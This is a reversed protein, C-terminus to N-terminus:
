SWNVAHHGGLWQDWELENPYGSPREPGDYYWIDPPPGAAGVAFWHGTITQREACWSQGDSSVHIRIGNPTPLCNQESRRELSPSMSENQYRGIRRHEGMQDFALSRLAEMTESHERQDLQNGDSDVGAVGSNDVLRREAVEEAAVRKRDEDIIQGVENWADKFGSTHAFRWGGARRLVRLRNPHRGALLVVALFRSHVPQGKAASRMQKFARQYTSYVALLYVYILAIATLWVPLLFERALDSQDIDAWDSMLRMIGWALAGLGYISLCRNAMKAPQAQKPFREPLGVVVICTFLVPQALLEVWLSFSALNAVFEVFVVVGISRLIERKFFGPEEIAETFKSFLGFGALLLWLVTTKWLGSEWIGLMSAPVLIGLMLGVYAWVFWFRFIALVPKLLDMTGGQRRGAWLFGALLVGLWVMSAIERNTFLGEDM